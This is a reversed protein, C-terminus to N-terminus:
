PSERERKKLLFFVSYKKINIVSIQRIIVLCAWVRVVLKDTPFARVFILLRM